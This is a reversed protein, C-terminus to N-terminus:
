NGELEYQSEFNIMNLRAPLEQGELYVMENQCVEYWGDTVINNNRIRFRRGSRVAELFNVTKVNKSM